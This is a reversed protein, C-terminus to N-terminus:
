KMNKKMFDELKDIGKNINERSTAYSFRVYEQTEGENKKGFSTSPLIAVGAEFLVREQFEKADKAGIMKCAETVNPYVYFAGKPVLCKFGPVKNLRDVILNRRALFEAKMAEADDQPGTLAEVGALQTFTATCSDSNTILNSVIAAMEKPMVGYGLRWGTMSYTKSFGDLIITREKMGPISSISAFPADYVLRSYIEDSFILINNEIAIQAIAELDKQPVIGGTPNQPSNIIIMKTKPTILSKLKEIDFSFENKEELAIPVAKGGVFNIMSEYIPFGPNPYIVEDGPQILALMTHFIIPKGGPTIVVEDPSVPIGRTKSVEAAVATRLEMLGASPGYHTFGNDLANKACEIINKPTDFDPEGISFSVIEKGEAKLKNVVALVAFANETGLRSIRDAFILKM